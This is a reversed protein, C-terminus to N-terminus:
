CKSAYDQRADLLSKVYSLHDVAVLGTFQQVLNICEMELDKHLLM